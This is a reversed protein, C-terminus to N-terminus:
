EDSALGWHCQRVAPCALSARHIREIESVMSEYNNQDFMEGAHRPRVDRLQELRSIMYMAWAVPSNHGIRRCREAHRQWSQRSRACALCCIDHAVAQLYTPHHTLDM